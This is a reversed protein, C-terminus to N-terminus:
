LISIVPVWRGGDMPCASGRGRGIETVKIREAVIAIRYVPSPLSLLPHSNRRSDIM